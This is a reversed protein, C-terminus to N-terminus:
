VDPRKRGPASMSGFIFFSFPLPLSLSLFGGCSYHARAVQPFLLHLLAGGGYDGYLFKRADRGGAGRRPRQGKKNGRTARSIIEGLPIALALGPTRPPARASKRTDAPNRFGRDGLNKRSSAAAVNLRHGLFIVIM